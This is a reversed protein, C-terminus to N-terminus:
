FFVCEYLGTLSAGFWLLRLCFVTMHFVCACFEFSFWKRNWENTTHTWENKNQKQWKQKENPVRTREVNVMCCNSSQEICTQQKHASSEKWFVIWISLLCMRVRVRVCPHMETCELLRGSIWETAKKLKNKDRAIRPWCGNESKLCM